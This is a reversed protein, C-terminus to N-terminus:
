DPLVIGGAPREPIRAGSVDFGHWWTAREARLVPRGSEARAGPGAAREHAITGHLSLGLVQRPRARPDSDLGVVASAGAPVGPGEAFELSYGAGWTAPQIRMRGSAETAVVVQRRGALGRRVDPPVVGPLAPAIGPAAPPVAVAHLRDMRVRVAVRNTPLWRLPTGPLDLAYGTLAASNKVALAAMAASITPWHTALGVPDDLSFVRATGDIVVGRSGAERGQVYVACRSERAFRQVKFSSASTAMWLSAGDSWFAMPSLLPGHEGSFALMCRVAGRLVDDTM